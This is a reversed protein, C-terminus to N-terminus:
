EIIGYLVQEIPSLPNLGYKGVGGCGGVAITLFCREFSSQSRLKRKKWLM